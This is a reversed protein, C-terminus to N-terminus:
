SRGPPSRASRAACRRPSGRGSRWRPASSALFALSAVFRRTWDIGPLGGLAGAVVAGAAISLRGSAPRRRGRVEGLGVLTAGAVVAGWTATVSLMRTPRPGAAPPAAGSATAVVTATMGGAAVAARRGGGVRLTRGAVPVAAVLPGSRVLAVDATEMIVESRM